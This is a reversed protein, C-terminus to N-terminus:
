RLLLDQVGHIWEHLQQTSNHPEDAVSADVDVLALGDLTILRLLCTLFPPLQLAKKKNNNHKSKNVKHPPCTGYYTPFTLPCSEGEM